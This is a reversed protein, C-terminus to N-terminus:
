RSAKFKGLITSEVLRLVSLNHRIQDAFAFFFASLFVVVVIGAVVESFMLGCVAAAAVFSVIGLGRFLKMFDLTPRLSDLGASARSLLMAIELTYQEAVRGKESNEIVNLMNLAEIMEEIDKAGDGFRLRTVLVAMFFTSCLLMFFCIVYMSHAALDSLQVIPACISTSEVCYKPISALWASSEIPGDDSFCIAIFASLALASLLTSEITYAEVRRIMVQISIRIRGIELDNSEHPLLNLGGSTFKFIEPINKQKKESGVACGSWVLLLASFAILKVWGFIKLLLSEDGKDASLFLFLHAAMLYLWMSLLFYGASDSMAKYKTFEKIAASNNDESPKLENSELLGNVYASQHFEDVQSARYSATFFLIWPLVYTVIWGHPVHFYVAWPTLGLITAFLTAVLPDLRPRFSPAIKFPSPTAEGGESKPDGGPEM